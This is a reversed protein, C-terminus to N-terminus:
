KLCTRGPGLSDGNDSAAVYGACQTPFKRCLTVGDNVPRSVGPAFLRPFKYRSGTMARGYRRLTGSGFFCVDNQCHGARYLDAPWAQRSREIM